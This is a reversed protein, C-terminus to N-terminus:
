VSMEPSEISVTKQSWEQMEQSFQGSKLYENLGFVNEKQEMECIKKWWEDFINKQTDMEVKCDQISDAGLRFLAKRIAIEECPMEVLETLEGCSIEATVEADANCYYPPFATGDFVEEFPIEENVFLVGYKTQIGRGSDLLKRGEEVLWKSNSYEFESLAGRINLMHTLGVKELDSADKIVTYRALNYTLNIMNKLGYGIKAEDCSLAAFFQTMEASNMGDMRKALYNLADLSVECDEIMSLESPEIQSVTATPCLHEPNMRLEELRNSLQTETCPFTMETVYPTKQIAAKIM